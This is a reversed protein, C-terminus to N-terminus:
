KRKVKKAKEKMKNAMKKVTSKAKYMKSGRRNKKTPM